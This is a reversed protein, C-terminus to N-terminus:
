PEIKPSTPCLNPCLWTPQWCLRLILASALPFSASPQVGVQGTRLRTRRSLEFQDVADYQVKILVM